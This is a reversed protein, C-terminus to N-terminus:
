IDYYWVSPDVTEESESEIAMCHTPSPRKRVSLVIEEMGEPIEIMSALTALADAFSNQSRPIYYFEM